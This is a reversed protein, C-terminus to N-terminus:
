RVVSLHYILVRNLFRPFSQQDAYGELTEWIWTEPFSKRINPSPIKTSVGDNRDISEEKENISEPLVDEEFSEDDEVYDYDPEFAVCFILSEINLQYKFFRCPLVSM